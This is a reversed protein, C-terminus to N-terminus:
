QAAFVDKCSARSAEAFEPSQVAGHRLFQEHDKAVLETM